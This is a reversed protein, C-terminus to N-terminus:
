FIMELVYILSFTFFFPAKRRRKPSEPGWTCKEEEKKKRQQEALAPLIYAEIQIKPNEGELIPLIDYQCTLNPYIFLMSMIDLLPFKKFFIFTPGM